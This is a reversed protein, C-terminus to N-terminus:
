RRRAGYTPRRGAFRPWSSGKGLVALGLFIALEREADLRLPLEAFFADLEERAREAALRLRDVLAFLRAEFPSPMESFTPATPSVTPPVTPEIPEVTSEIASFARLPAPVIAL